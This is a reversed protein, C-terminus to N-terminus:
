TFAFKLHELWKKNRRLKFHSKEWHMEQGGVQRTYLTKMLQGLISSITYKDTLYEGVSLDYLQLHKQVKIADNYKKSGEAFHKCIMNGSRDYEKPM